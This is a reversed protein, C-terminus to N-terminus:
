EDLKRRCFSCGAAGLGPVCLRCVFVLDGLMQEVVCRAASHPNRQILLTKPCLAQGNGLGTRLEFFLAWAVGGVGVNRALLYLIVYASTGHLERHCAGAAAQLKAATAGQVPHPKTFQTSALSQTFSFAIDLLPEQGTIRM